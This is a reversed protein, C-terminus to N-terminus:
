MKKKMGDNKKMKKDDKMGDDKMMEGKKMDDKMMKSDKKMGDDMMAKDSQMGGSKPEMAIAQAFSLVCVMAAISLISILKKM